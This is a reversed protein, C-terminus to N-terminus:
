IENRKLAEDCIKVCNTYGYIEYRKRQWKLWERLEAQAKIAPPFNPNIIGLAKLYENSAIQLKGKLKLDKTAM